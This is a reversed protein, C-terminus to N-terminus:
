SNYYDRFWKVYRDIGDQLKTNPQYNFDKILESVDAYTDIVDGPQMPLMDKIAKKGTAREIAQIFELLKVPDNNGINYLRMKANSGHDKSEQAKPGALTVKYVGEVIDNIYTFDRSLNGHNFVKIKQERLISNTFLYPAMDPRGWPGYVTFFRLGTMPIDFLHSYCHAMLENSRKTVAYLSIPHDVPDTISLPMKKNAGYVSSSSAFVVHQPPYYRCAELINLFGTINSSTYAEPNKLSYRVGPQAALHIVRQFKEAEFLKLLIEKDELNARIFKYNSYLNSTICQNWEVLEEMLGKQKLRDFKLKPDYYDNISDLGVVDYGAEIFRKAVHYGIFGATGTILIKQKM